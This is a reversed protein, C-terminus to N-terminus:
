YHYALLPHGGAPSTEGDPGTIIHQNDETLFIRPYHPVPPQERRSPLDSTAPDFFCDAGLANITATEQDVHTPTPSWETPQDSGHLVWIGARLHAYTDPLAELSAEGFLEALGPGLLTRWAIGSLGDTANLPIFKHKPHAHQKALAHNRQRTEFQQHPSVTGYSCSLLPVIQAMADLLHEVNDITVAGHISSDITPWLSFRALVFQERTTGGLFSTNGTRSWSKTAIQRVMRESHNVDWKAITEASAGHFELAPLEIVRPEDVLKAFVQRILDLDAPLGPPAWLRFSVLESILAVAEM